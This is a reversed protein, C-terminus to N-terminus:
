SRAEDLDKSRVFCRETLMTMRRRGPKVGDSVCLSVLWPRIRGLSVHVYRQRRADFRADIVAM